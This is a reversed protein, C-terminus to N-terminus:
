TPLQRRTRAGRAQFVCVDAPRREAASRLNPAFIELSEPLYDQRTSCSGCRRSTRRTRGRSPFPKSGTSTKRPRIARSCGGARSDLLPSQDDRGERRVHVAAARRRDGQGADGAAAANVTVQKKNAEFSYSRRATAFGTSAWSPIRCSRRRSAARGRRPLVSVLKEVHYLGKDPQAYKISARPMRGRIGGASESRRLRRRLGVAPVQMRVAQGQRQASGLIAARRRDVEARRADDAGAWEPQQPMAPLVAQPRRVSCQQAPPVAPAIPRIDSAQRASYGGPAAGRKQAGGRSEGPDSRRRAFRCSGVLLCCRALLRTM